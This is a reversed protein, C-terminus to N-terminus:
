KLKFSGAAQNLEHALGDLRSVAERAAAISADSEEAMQAIREINSAIHSSALSQEQMAAAVDRIQLLTGEVSGRIERLAGEARETRAVGGDVLQGVEDMKSAVADVERQVAQTTKVIDETASGTREALKRVEDAVVAFGRGQEGARAAEIAANLALLNTQDAIEKITAAISDIQRSSDVLGRIMTAASAVDAAIQRNEGSVQAALAEGEAALKASQTSHGTTERASNNVHDISVTMQEVAAVTASTADASAHASTVIQQMQTDLQKSSQVLVGAAGSIRQALQRLGDQMRAMASLLSDSEGNVRVQRSLDGAAIAGAIEAAYGPEGGLQRLIGRGMTLALGGVVVIIVVGAALFTLAFHWFANDVDDVFFGIGVLWSWPEFRYVGNLKPLQRKEKDGPRTTYIVMIAPNAKELYENYVEATTRGDPMKSGPDVKGVRKADPHVLMVNDTSRVFFYDSDRRLASLADKAKAQADERSMQGSAELRQYHELLGRALNLNTRIQSYREAMMAERLSYLGIGSVICLGVVAAAIIAWIRNSLKM